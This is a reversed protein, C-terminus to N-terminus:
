GDVSVVFVDGAGVPVGLSLAHIGRRPNIEFAATEVDGIIFGFSV